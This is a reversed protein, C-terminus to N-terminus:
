EYILETSDKKCPNTRQAQQTAGPAPWTRQRLSSPRLHTGVIPFALQGSRQLLGTCGAFFSLQVWRLCPLRGGIDRKNNLAYSHRLPM